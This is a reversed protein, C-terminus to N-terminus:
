KYLKQISDVACSAVNIFENLIVPCQIRLFNRSNNSLLFRKHLFINEFKLNFIFHRSLYIDICNCRLFHIHMTCHENWTLIGMSTSHNSNRFMNLECVSNLWFTVTWVTKSTAMANEFYKIQNFCNEFRIMFLLEM